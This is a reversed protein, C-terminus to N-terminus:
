NNEGDMGDPNIEEDEDDESVPQYNKGQQDGHGGSSCNRMGKENGFRNNRGVMMDRSEDEEGDDSCMREEDSTARMGLKGGGVMGGLTLDKPSGTDGAALLFDAPHPFFGGPRTPLGFGHQTLHQLQARNHEQLQQAYTSHVTAALHPPLLM